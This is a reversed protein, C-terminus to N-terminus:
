GKIVALPTLQAVKQCLGARCVVKVVQQVSKYAQPAEEAASKPNETKILISKQRLSAIVEKPRLSRLAQHRSMRRGAGHCTSGFSSAMAENTGALVYSATGMSGPILVPQGTKQYIKPLAKQGPSFARTAGKRHVLLSPKAQNDSQPLQHEEIKAINHAIDYVIKLNLENGFIEKAIQRLLHTILQRNAFAFNAAANMAEFYTKGEPSNYPAGALERDPLTLNLKKMLFVMKKMADSAVQHGLGRSGTHIMFCIQNQFLGFGKAIEQHYLASVKQIEIFHNGAGLTGLQNQGRFIARQGIAEPNAQPMKGEDEILLADEPKGYGSKILYQAGGALIKKLTKANLKFHGDRGIGSPITQFIKQALKEIFSNIDQHALSTKLLRVGCNIDYGVAGPSILGSPLQTAFICGIPVGYGEHIDPMALAAGRIGPLSTANILQSLSKDKFLEDLYQEDEYFRAPVRMNPKSGKPIEWLYNDIKKLDKKTLM